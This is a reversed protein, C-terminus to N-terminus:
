RIGVDTRERADAAGFREAAGDGVCVGRAMRHALRRGRLMLMAPMALGGMAALVRETTARAYPVWAEPESLYLSTVGALILRHETGAVGARVRSEVALRGMRQVMEQPSSYHDLLNHQGTLADESHDVLSDLLTHLAGVWPWYVGEIVQARERTVGPRGAAGLLALTALSSGAAAAVEWWRHGSAHAGEREAWRALADHDATRALNDHDATRALNIASQYFVIRRAGALAADAVAPYSPLGALEARCLDVLEALYGGDDPQACHRYYDPHGRGPQLALVLAVHLQRANAAPSENPQEMVTDTYQYISQLRVLLRVVAARRHRPTFAAFAATGELSAWDGDYVQLALRRLSHDPIRLARARLRRLECRAVPLVGLWYRRAALAFAGALRLQQNHQPHLGSLANCEM